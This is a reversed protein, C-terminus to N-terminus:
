RRGKMAETILSRAAPISVGFREAVEHRGCGYALMKRVKEYRKEREDRTLREATMAEGPKSM